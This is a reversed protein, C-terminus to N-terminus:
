SARLPCDGVVKPYPLLVLHQLPGPSDSAIDTAVNLFNLIGSWAHIATLRVRVPDHVEVVHSALVEVYPHERGDRNREIHYLLLNCLTVYDTSVTM